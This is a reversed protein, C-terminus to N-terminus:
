DKLRIPHLGLPLREDFGPIKDSVPRLNKLSFVLKEALKSTYNFRPRHRGQKRLNLHCAPKPPPTGARDYTTTGEPIPRQERTVTQCRQDHNEGYHTRDVPPSLKRDDYVMWNSSLAQADLYSVTLQKGTRVKKGAFRGYSSFWCGNTLM